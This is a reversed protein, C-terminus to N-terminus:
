CVWPADGILSAWRSLVFSRAETRRTFRAEDRALPGQFGIRWSVVCSLELAAIAMSTVSKLPGAGPPSDRATAELLEPWRWVTGVDASSAASCSSSAGAGIWPWGGGYSGADARAGAALLVLVLVAVGACFSSAGASAVRDERWELLDRVDPM